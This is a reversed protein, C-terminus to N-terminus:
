NGHQPPWKNGGGKFQGQWTEASYFLREKSPVWAQFCVGLPLPQGDLGKVTSLLCAPARFLWHDPVTSAVRLLSPALPTCLVLPVSNTLSGPWPLSDRVFWVPWLGLVANHLWLHGLVTKSLPLPQQRWDWRLKLTARPFSPSDTWNVLCKALM